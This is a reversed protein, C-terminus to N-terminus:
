EDSMGALYMEYKNCADALIFYIEEKDRMSSYVADVLDGRHGDFEYFLTKGPEGEIHITVKDEM